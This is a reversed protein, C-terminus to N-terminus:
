IAFPRGYIAVITGPQLGMALAQHGANDILRALGAYTVFDMATGPTCIAIGNPNIKAQFLIPEVVNM